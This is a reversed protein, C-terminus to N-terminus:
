PVPPMIGRIVQAEKAGPRATALIAEVVLVEHHIARHLFQAAIMKVDNGRAEGTPRQSMSSPGLHFGSFHEGSLASPSPNLRIKHSGRDLPATPQAIAVAM